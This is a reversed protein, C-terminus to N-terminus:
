VEWSDSEDVLDHREVSYKSAEQSEALMVEWGDFHFSRQYGSESSDKIAPRLNAPQALLPAPRNRHLDELCLHLDYDDTYAAQFHAAEGGVVALFDGEGLLYEAQTDMLGTATRAASEDAVQGVIRVPLNARLQNNLVATEPFQTSLVCHIGAGGGHQLLTQLPNLVVDGGTELLHDVKDILVVITPLKVQQQRRYEMEGHLFNLTEVAEELRYSIGALMHPLLSLPQLIAYSHRSVATEPDIVLLQLRSQRNKLALSLALTRLLSTKGSGTDGAILVHSVDPNDFDLLVPRGNEDLGLTATVPPLDPLLPLLDLLAVPPSEPRTIYLKLQGDERSLRVEPVNLVSKLEHTLGRLREWGQSLSSNLDFSILSSRVTGGAVQASFQHQSFVREIQESQLQLQHQLRDQPRGRNAQQNQRGSM